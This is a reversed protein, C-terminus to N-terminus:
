WSRTWPRSIRNLQVRSAVPEFSQVLLLRMQWNAGWPAVRKAPHHPWPSLAARGNDAHVSVIARDGVPTSVARGPVTADVRIPRGERRRPRLGAKEAAGSFVRLPRSARGRRSRGRERDSARASRAGARRGLATTSRRRQSIEPQSTWVIKATSARRDASAPYSAGKARGPHSFRCGRLRVATSSSCCKARSVCVASLSIRCSRLPSQATRL